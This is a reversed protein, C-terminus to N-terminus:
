WWKQEVELKNSRVTIGENALETGGFKRDGM